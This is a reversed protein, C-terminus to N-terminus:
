SKGNTVTEVQDDKIYIYYYSTTHRFLNKAVCYVKNINHIYPQMIGMGDAIRRVETKAPITIEIGQWQMTIAHKTREM